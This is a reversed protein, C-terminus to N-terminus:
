RLNSFLPKWLNHNPLVAAHLMDPNTLIIRAKERIGQREEQPTDGDYTAYLENVITSSPLLKSLARLQDQALAKTPSVYLSYPPDTFAALSQLMPVQYVLSKGSSTSTCVVVDKGEMVASIAEVQHGFLQTVGVNALSAWVEPLLDFDPAGYVAERAPQEHRYTIQGTYFPHALMYALFADIDMAQPPGQLGAGDDKHGAVTWFGGLEPIEDVDEAKLPLEARPLPPCEAAAPFDPDIGDPNRPM